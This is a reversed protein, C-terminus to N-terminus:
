SMLLQNLKRCIKTPCQKKSRCFVPEGYFNNAECRTIKRRKLFCDTFLCSGKYWGAKEDHTHSWISTCNEARCEQRDVEYWIGNDKHYYRDEMKVLKKAPKKWKYRKREIKRLIGDDELVYLERWRGSIEKGDSTYIKGNKKFCNLEVYYSIHEHLRKPLQHIIDSYVENWPKGVSGTIKSQITHLLQDDKACREKTLWDNKAKLASSFTRDKPQIDEIDIARM